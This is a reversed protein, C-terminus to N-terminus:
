EPREYPKTAGEILTKREWEAMAEANLKAPTKPSVVGVGKYNEDARGYAGATVGSTKKAKKPKVSNYRFTAMVNGNEDKIKATWSHSSEEYDVNLWDKM